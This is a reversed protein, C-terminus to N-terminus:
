DSTTEVLDAEGDDTADGNSHADGNSPSATITLMKSELATAEILLQEDSLVAYDHKVRVESSSLRYHVYPAAAGAAAIIGARDRAALSWRMCILMSELPTMLAIQEPTLQLEDYAAQLARQQAEEKLLTASNRKGKARGGYRPHGKPAPMVVRKVKNPTGKARGGYRPHGKPPAMGEMSDLCFLYVFAAFDQKADRLSGGSAVARPVVRLVAQHPRSSWRAGCRQPQHDVRSITTPRGLQRRM